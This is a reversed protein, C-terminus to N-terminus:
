VNNYENPLIIPIDGKEETYESFKIGKLGAKEIADKLPQSVVMASSTPTNELFDYDELLVFTEFTPKAQRNPLSRRMALYDEISKFSGAEFRKVVEKSDRDVLAIISKNYDVLDLYGHMHLMYYKVGGANKMDVEYFRIEPLHFQELIEKLRSSIVELIGKPHHSWHKTHDKKWNYIDQIVPEKNQLDPHNTVIEMPVIKPNEWFKNIVIEEDLNLDFNTRLTHMVGWSLGYTM